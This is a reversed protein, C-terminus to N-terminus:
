DIIWSAEELIETGCMQVFRKRQMMCDVSVQLLVRGLAMMVYIREEKENKRERM